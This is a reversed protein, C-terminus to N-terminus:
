WLNLYIKNCMIIIRTKHKYQYIFSNKRITNYLYYARYLSSKKLHYQNWCFIYTVKNYLIYKTQFLDANKFGIFVTFVSHRFPQAHEWKQLDLRQHRKVWYSFNYSQMDVWTLDNISFNQIIKHKDILQTWYSIMVIHM